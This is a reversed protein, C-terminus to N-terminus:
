IKEELEKIYTQMKVNQKLLNDYRTHWYKSTRKDPNKANLIKGEAISNIIHDKYKM